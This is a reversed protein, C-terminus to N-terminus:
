KEALINEKDIQTLKYGNNFLKEKILTLKSGQLFTGDFHKSEFQISTIKIM